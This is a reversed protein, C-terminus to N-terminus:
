SVDAPVGLDSASCRYFDLDVAGAISSSNEAGSLKGFVNKTTASVDSNNNVGDSGRGAPASTFNPTSDSSPPDISPSFTDCISSLTQMQSKTFSHRTPPNWSKLLPHGVPGDFDELVKLGAVSGNMEGGQAIESLEVKNSEVMGPNSTLERWLDALEHLVEQLFQVKISQAVVCSFQVV